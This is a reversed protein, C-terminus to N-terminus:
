LPRGERELFGTSDDEDDDDDDDDEEDRKDETEGKDLVVLGTEAEEYQLGIIKM